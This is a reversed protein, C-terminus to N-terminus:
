QGHCEFLGEVGSLGFAADVGIPLGFARELGACVCLPILMERHHDRRRIDGARQVHAMRKVVRQLINQHAPVPHLPKVREPLRAL